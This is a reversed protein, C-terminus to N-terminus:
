AAPAPGCGGPWRCRPCGPRGATRPWPTLSRTPRRTTGRGPAAVTGALSSFLVFAELDADRTLEHLHWAADAKPRLVAEVRAPSLSEIVGDDLAGAAHIVMTLPGGARVGALLGALAPRDAADCAAVRVRAGRAALDAALDAAGPAAPGSRSALVVSGLERHSVLHGAVLGGLTGTGGTILATGERPSDDTTAEPAGSPAPEPAGPTAYTLRRAYAARQRLALEPEDTELATALADAHEAAGAPEAADAHDAAGAPETPLDALILRGPNESQASRILGWVAAGPLDPAAEGPEAAVAGRTALVLRAAGLGDEALWEQVLELVRAAEARAAAPPDGAGACSAGAEALVLQPAPDGAAVAATLATLDPYVSVDLGAAALAPVLGLPDAGIAAWRGAARPPALPEALPRALPGTGPLRVWVM